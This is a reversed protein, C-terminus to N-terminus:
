NNEFRRVIFSSNIGGCAFNNTITYENDVSAGDGVIRWLEVLGDSSVAM